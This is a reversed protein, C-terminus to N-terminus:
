QWGERLELRYEKLELFRNLEDLIEASIEKWEADEQVQRYLKSDDYDGVVVVRCGAWRGAHVSEFRVDGGGGESSQRLLFPFVGAIPNVALEWLKAGSGLRHPHIYEKRDLNAIVFYQGM